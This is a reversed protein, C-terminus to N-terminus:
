SATRLSGEKESTDRESFRRLEAVIDALNRDANIKRWSSQTANRQLQRSLIDITADSSGGKRESVRQWLVLPDAELWFGFFAVDRDSAAKEIRDRDASRDFVADAVVSGGESLILGARWAM